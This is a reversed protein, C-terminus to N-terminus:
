INDLFTKNLGKTCSKCEKFGHPKKDYKKDSPQLSMGCLATPYQHGNPVSAMHYVASRKPDTVFYKM